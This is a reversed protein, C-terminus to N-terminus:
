RLDKVGLCGREKVLMNEEMESFLIEKKIEWM